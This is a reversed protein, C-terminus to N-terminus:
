PELLVQLGREQVLSLLKLAIGNPKKTGQEWQRVTSVSTNLCMAFVAQSAHNQKRIVKIQSPSCSKVKPLCMTDFTRLDETKLSNTEHLHAMEQAIETKM